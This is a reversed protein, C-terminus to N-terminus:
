KWIINRTQSDSYQWKTPMIGKEGIVPDAYKTAHWIINTLPRQLIMQAYGLTIRM